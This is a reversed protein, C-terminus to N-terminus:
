LRDTRSHYSMLLVAPEVGVGEERGNPSPLFINATRFVQTPPQVTPADPLSRWTRMEQRQVELSNSGDFQVGGFCTLQLVNARACRGALLSSFSILRITAIQGVM